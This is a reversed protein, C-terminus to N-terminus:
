GKDLKNRYKSGFRFEWAIYIYISIMPWYKLVTNMDIMENYDTIVSTATHTIVIATTNNYHRHWSHVVWLPPTGEFLFQLEPTLPQSEDLSWEYRHPYCRETWRAYSHLPECRTRPVSHGCSQCQTVHVYPVCTRSGNIHLM